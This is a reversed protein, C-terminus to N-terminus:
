PSFWAYGGGGKPLGTLADTNYRVGGHANGGGISIGDLNGIAVIAGYVSFNGGLEVSGGEEVIIIGEHSGTGNTKLKGGDRVIILGSTNTNGNSKVDEGTIEIIGPDDREGQELSGSGIEKGSLKEIFSDWLGAGKALYKSGSLEGSANEKCKNGKCDFDEPLPHKSDSFYDDIGTPMSSPCGNGICSLPATLETPFDSPGSSTGGVKGVVVLHEAVPDVDEGELVQGRAIYFSSPLSNGTGKKYSDEAKQCSAETSGPTCEFYSRRLYVDENEPFGAAAVKMVEWDEITEEIDDSIPLSSYNKRIYGAVDEAAMQALTSARYNGALREDILAANMGSIGIMLSGSLLALVIVLAAGQQKNNM